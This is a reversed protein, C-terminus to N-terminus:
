EDGVIDSEQWIRLFDEENYVWQEREAPFTVIKVGVIGPRVQLVTTAKNIRQTCHLMMGVTQTDQVGKTALRLAALHEEEFQITTIMARHTPTLSALWRRGYKATTRFTAPSGYYLRAFRQRSGSDVRLQVPPKYRADVYRITPDATFTFDYIKSFLEPPLEALLEQVSPEQLVNITRM